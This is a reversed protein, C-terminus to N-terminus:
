QWRMAVKVVVMVAGWGGGSSSGGSSSSSSGSSPQATCPALCMILCTLPEPNSEWHHDNCNHGKKQKLSCRVLESPDKSLVKLYYPENCVVIILSCFVLLWMSTQINGLIFLEHQRRQDWPLINITVPDGSCTVIVRSFLALIEHCVIVLVLGM